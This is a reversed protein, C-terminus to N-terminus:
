KGICFRSFIMSLLDEESTEGTVAGLSKLGAHLDALVFEESLGQQLATAAHQLHDRADEFCRCHRLNTILIGDRDFSTAGFLHQLIVQRLEGVRDGTKASVEIRPFPAAFSGMEAQAWASPLDAKNFIVITAADRLLERLRRDEEGCPLSRDIVLLVADADVMAQYSRQMGLLEISNKSAGVGATDLLRLPIGELSTSEAVLDRTTGPTETVISREQLLLANFLSSKGVNPRGVVALSFGDRVIRGQRFSAIYAQLDGLISGLRKAILERSELPLDEEVFEVASELNVIMDILANRLPELRRSLEGSRQRSAVQAQYLTSAEIVDRVAEAQVLDMKGHLFARMTFEGPEALRAGAVRLSDLLSAVVVPSGHLSIEAVDEGTYSQPAPFFTLLADDVERGINLDFLQGTVIRRAPLAEIPSRPIFCKRTVSACDPGSVRV